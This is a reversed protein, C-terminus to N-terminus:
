KNVFIVPPYPNEALREYKGTSHQVQAGHVTGKKKKNVYMMYSPLKKKRYWTESRALETCKLKM